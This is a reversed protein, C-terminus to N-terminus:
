EHMPLFPLIHSTIVILLFKNSCLKRHFVKFIIECVCGSIFLFNNVFREEKPKLSEWRSIYYLSPGFASLTILSFAVGLEWLKIENILPRSHVPGVHCRPYDPRTVKTRRSVYTVTRTSLRSIM